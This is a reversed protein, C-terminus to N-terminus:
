VDFVSIVKRQGIRIGEPRTRITKLGTAKAFADDRYHMISEFCYSGVDKNRIPDTLFNHEMGDVINEFLVEVREDRDDRSQEHLLGLAHGIEHAVSGTPCGSALKIEQKGGAMGVKSNCVTAEVFEVYNGSPSLLEVFKVTGTAEWMQIAKYVRGKDPLSPSVMFRMTAGPWRRKASRTIVGFSEVGGVSQLTATGSIVSSLEEGSGIVIDGQYTADGDNIIFPLKAIAEGFPVDIELVIENADFLLFEADPQLPDIEVTANQALTPSAIFFSVFFLVMRVTQIKM